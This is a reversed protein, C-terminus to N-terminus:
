STGTSRQKAPNIRTQCRQRILRGDAAEAVKQLRVIQASRRQILDIAM